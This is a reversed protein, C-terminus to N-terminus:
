ADRFRFLGPGDPLYKSGTDQVIAPKGSALDCVTRVSLWGTRLKGYVPKCCSFEGRSPQMYYQYSTVTSTVDHAERVHTEYASHSDVDRVVSHASFAQSDYSISQLAFAYVKKFFTRM